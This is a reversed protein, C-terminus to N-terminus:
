HIFDFYQSTMPSQYLLCKELNLTKTNELVESIQLRFIKCLNVSVLISGGHQHVEWPKRDNRGLRFNDRGLEFDNRGFQFYNRGSWFNTRGFNKMFLVLM